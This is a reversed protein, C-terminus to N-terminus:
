SPGFTDVDKVEDWTDFQCAEIIVEDRLFRQVCAQATAAVNCGGFGIRGKVGRAGIPLRAGRTLPTLERVRQEVNKESPVVCSFNSIIRVYTGSYLCLLAYSMSDKRGYKTNCNGKGCWYETGLGWRLLARELKHVEERRTMRTFRKM